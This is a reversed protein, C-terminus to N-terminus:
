RGGTRRDFAQVCVEPRGSEDTSYAIWRGDTSFKAQGENSEGQLFPYPKTTDMPLVWIDYKTVPDTVEYLVNKGDPSWDDPLTWTNTSFFLEEAGAGHADKQFIAFLGNRASAFLLKSGDPSWVPGMDVAPDFTLRSRNGTDIDFMWLDTSPLGMDVVARKGDPSLSVGYISEAPDGVTGILKGSRDFKQLADMVSGRLFSLIGNRSVSVVRSGSHAPFFWLKQSLRHPEGSLKLTKVDFRQATLADSQYFLLYGPEAYVAEHDSKLLFLKQSSDLSGIFIGRKKGHVFYLFHTRDPLFWPFRHSTEQASSNLSTVRSM